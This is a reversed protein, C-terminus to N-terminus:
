APRRVLTAELHDQLPLGVAGMRFTYRLTDGDLHFLRETGRVDKATTTLSVSRSRLALEAQQPGSARWVGELIEAVGTPHALVVEVATAGGELEGVWRWYGAEAHLPRDETAHRTRQRYALFPKTPVAEFTIEETYGFPEISPYFGRGPGAWTGLLMDLPGGTM